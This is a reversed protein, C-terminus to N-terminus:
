SIVDAATVFIAVEMQLMQFHTQLRQVEREAVTADSYVGNILCRGDGFNITVLYVTM